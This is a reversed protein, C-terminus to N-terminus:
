LEVPDQELADSSFEMMKSQFDSILLYLDNKYKLPLADSAMLTQVAKLIDMDVDLRLMSNIKDRIDLMNKRLTAKDKIIKSVDLIEAKNIRYKRDAKPAVLKLAEDLIKMDIAAETLQCFYWYVAEGLQLNRDLLGEIKLDKLFYRMVERAEKRLLEHKAVLTDLIVTHSAGKQILGVVVLRMKALEQAEFNEMIEPLM